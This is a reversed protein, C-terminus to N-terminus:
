YPVGRGRGGRPPAHNPARYAKSFAQSPAAWTQNTGAATGSGLENFNSIKAEQYLHSSNSSGETQGTPPVTGSHMGLPVRTFRLDQDGPFQLSGTGQYGSTEGLQAPFTRNQAVSQPSQEGLLQGSDRDDSGVNYVDEPGESSYTRSSLKCTFDSPLRHTDRVGKVPDPEVDSQTFLQILATTSPPNTDAADGEPIPPPPPPGPPEPPRKEPPLIRPHSAPSLNSGKVGDKFICISLLFFFVNVCPVVCQQLASAWNFVAWSVGVSRTSYATVRFPPNKGKSRYAESIASRIWRSITAKSAPLGKRRGEPLVFLSDSWRFPSTASLYARLARVVDLNHLSREKPHSPAPCFSPLVIDENLHFSSVVKPQFSPVPRLVAKDQHLILFPPQCSLAALESVRRISTVGVLFSVKWSLFRLIPEFPASQLDSLVLNLYWHPTPSRYPPIEHAVGQLFTRVSSNSALLRQFLISRVSVQSKLSSIALRMELDSDAHLSRRPWDPAVLIASVGETKLKRLVSPLLPLPPFLYPLTFRSWPIVLADAVLALPDRSKAVFAPVKQNLRSAFLYVDPIGLHHCISKLVEPHLSWEGPDPSSLSLFDTEWKEVGPIHIASISPVLREAWILIKSVEAMASRSRTGGQRIVYAVATSNDTQIRVPRGRLLSEWHRLYLFIAQIELVNIPLGSEQGPGDPGSSRGGLQPSERRYDPGTLETSPVLSWEPPSRLWWLLSQRNSTPLSLRRDLSLPSRVSSCKAQGSPSVGPGDRYRVSTGSFGSVPLSFSQIKEQQDAVRFQDSDASHHPSEKNQALSPAKILLDDLYPLVSVGRSRLIAIVAALVKTFVRPATALEFPLALFQFHGETRCVASVTILFDPLGSTLSHLRFQELQLSLLSPLGRQVTSQLSEESNYLRALGFDALKIQGSNNLLINSCKIDRHLFNKKHCYDLGEMLQKMFSKIHDESFQVLGSELLGMLDHDMYEFVLYFAGKDKKFDLADQKDTVIEKMNVVSRHILQRLIKIERIATIPFGEKENDLRVKKLAVLEGTDKDKAKYVQGYTGEGIIGIIDFKDVCRKGWDIEKQKREGYRPCCIKPRKRLPQQSPTVVKPEPSEPPSPDGGPLEPPLPLDTLLHRPRQEKNRKVPKSPIIEMPSEIDDEGPLLPPLPLPPLTSTKLHPIFNAPLQLKSTSLSSPQSNAQPTITSARTQSTPAVSTAVTPLQLFTLSSPPPPLPPPPQQPVVPSPPLPPLPPPPSCTPLPPKPSKLTPLPPVDKEKEKETVGETPTLVEEKIPTCKNEKVVQTKTDKTSILPKKEVEETKISSSITKDANATVTLETDSVSKDIKLTKTIKKADVISLGKGDGTERKILPSGRPDRGAAAAALAREKKKRSLEAGLSSNLPLRAPSISSHRSRSQSKQKKRSSSSKRSYIPSRSRSKVSKRPLPSRSVSRKSVFPSSSRRRGYPSPSRGSYSGSGREYSSSRRRYPSVSRQRRSYPSPSRTNTQYASPEKYNPSELGKKYTDVYNSSAHSRPPSGDYDQGGSADSQSDDQKPSGGYKRRPSRGKRKPSDSTKYRKSSDRKRHGKARDKQGSKLERERRAKERHIKSLRVEKNSSKSSRGHEEQDEVVRKTVTREKSSPVKSVMTEQSKEPKRERELQKGKTSEKVKKHQHRHRSKHSKDSKESGRREDSDRKEPKSSVDDSFTDSDSSIDDYEVLKLTTPVLPELAVPSDKLHKSKHRKHKSGMRQREKNNSSGSSQPMNSASGGSDKKNGHRVPNPM